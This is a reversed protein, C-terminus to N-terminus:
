FTLWSSLDRDILDQLKLIDERYYEVLQKREALSLPAQSKDSSNLNILTSRLKQRASEPLITRLGTAVLTRVPNKQRLVKNVLKNKPVQAVQAKKSMDPCFSEDVGIFKYMDQMFEVPKECLDEYLCIKIRERNFQAYFHQLRQYYLGKLLTYSKDAKYKLQESLSTPNGIADRIHMLYDSYAREAPNRLIAILQADPVYRVIREISAQYHFLYNPSVEGIAKEDTVDQFLNGYKEFTDIRNPKPKIKSLDAHEWDRELFNTEKVPSMYVQPHQKLYNNVSTTGAKEVCIILFTPLKMVTNM